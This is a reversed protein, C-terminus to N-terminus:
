VYKWPKGGNPITFDTAYKCYELSAQAKEQVDASEIDM